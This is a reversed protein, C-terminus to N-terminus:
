CESTVPNQVEEHKDCFNAKVPPRHMNM